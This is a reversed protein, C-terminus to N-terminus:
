PNSLEQFRLALLMDLCECLALFTAVYERINIGSPPTSHRGTHACINRMEMFSTLFTDLRGYQLTLSNIEKWGGKIMLGRLLSAVVDPGPNSKTNAFSEWALTIPGGGVCSGLRRSLDDSKAFNGNAKDVKAAWALADAGGSYHGRILDDHFNTRPLSLGNVDNIFEKIISKLFNEFYGSLLVVSACSVANTIPLRASMLAAPTSLEAGVLDINMLSDAFEEAALYTFITV